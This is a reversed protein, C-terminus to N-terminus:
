WGVSRASPPEFGERRAVLGAGMLDPRDLAYPYGPGPKPGQRSRTIATDAPRLGTDLHLARPAFSRSAPTQRAPHYERRTLADASRTFPAYIREHLEGTSTCCVASCTRDIVRGQLEDGVVTLGAPPDPAELGFARHPRHKNYHGVYVRLVHELHPTWCHAALGPVRDAGDPDLAGRVREGPTGARAHPAGSPRSASSTTSAAPSSADRDRVLFRLQRRSMSGGLALNRAQQTVWAPRSERHVRALHVRRTRLEIFFLVYLTKLWVTEVTFFDCALISAAHQRLFVSWSVEGPAPGARARPPAPTTRIATASVRLGLRWNGKIRQYGWRPNERALRVVLQQVEQDLPPRGTQRHPYIWAGAVLRRHWRLLTEPQVFFCSWRARPLVRSVAALLARDAPELRPRPTQRRLVALQHRLVLLELDKAADGRALLVLLQISRCLGVYALKSLM